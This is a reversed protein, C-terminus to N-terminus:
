EIAPFPLGQLAIVLFTVWKKIARVMERKGPPGPISQVELGL